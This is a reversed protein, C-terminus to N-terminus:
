LVNNKHIWSNHSNNYGLWKVFVYNGKRRLVREVLYINPHKTKQLEETYFAGAVLQQQYDKLLYTIPNTPQVKHITFLETTWNPTYGKEFHHKQKSIRVVDGERFKNKRTDVMKIQNYITSLLRNDHVDSPKMKITRHYSHNYDHVLKPILHLWSHSGQKTFARWMRERLTRNFREVVCAKMTSYTSYHNIDHSTAWKKFDSNYFEKGQDTQIHKPFRKSNNYIKRVVATVEKGTKTKLPHAWAYKSYVDIITLMYKFGKNERSYPIMEVLDMQHLDDLGKTIVRRRTYRKRAIRHLERAIRGRIDDVSM